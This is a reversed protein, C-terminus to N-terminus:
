AEQGDSDVKGTESDEIPEFESQIKWTFGCKRCHHLPYAGDPTHEYGSYETRKSECNPCKDKKM